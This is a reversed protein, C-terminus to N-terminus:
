LWTVGWASVTVKKRGPGRVIRSSGPLSKINAQCTTFLMKCEEGLFLCMRRPCRCLRGSLATAAGWCQFWKWDKAGGRGRWIQDVVLYGPIIKPNILKSKITTANKEASPTPPRDLRPRSSLVSSAPVEMIWTQSLSLPTKFLITWLAADFVSVM